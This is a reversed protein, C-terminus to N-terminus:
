ALIPEDFLMSLKVLDVISQTQTKDMISARHAEVTKISINLERATEKNTKGNLILKLVKLEKTSISEWRAKKNAYDSHHTEDYSMANQIKELIVNVSFPKTVFDFAKNKMAKVALEVEGYATIFIIPLKIQKKHLEEQIQLGSLGPLRIDSVICGRSTENVEHLFDKGNNFCRCSLNVSHVLDVLTQALDVDDEIIYVFNPPM